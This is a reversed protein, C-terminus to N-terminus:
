LYDLVDDQRAPGVLVAVRSGRLNQTLAKLKHCGSYCACMSVM